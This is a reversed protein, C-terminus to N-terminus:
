YIETLRVALREGIVEFEVWGILQSNAKLPVDMSQPWGADLVSDVELCFLDRVTFRSVGIEASLQCPLLEADAWRTPLQPKAAPEAPAQGQKAAVAPVAAAVTSASM